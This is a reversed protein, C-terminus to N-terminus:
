IAQVILQTPSKIVCAVNQADYFHESKFLTKLVPKIAYDGDRFKKALKLIFGQADKDPKGASGPADNVFFRYFKWCIFESCVSRSLILNCFDIGDFNGTKGFISKAADDHM